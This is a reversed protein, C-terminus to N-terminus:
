KILETAQYKRQLTYLLYVFKWGYIESGIDSFSRPIFHPPAVQSSFNSCILLHGRCASLNGHSTLYTTGTSLLAGRRSSTNSSHIHLEVCKKVEASSLPSYDAESGPRKVGLFSDRTGAPYSAIHAGSSTQVHNLHSFDGAMAPFRFGM